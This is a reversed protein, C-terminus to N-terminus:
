GKDGSARDSASGSVSGSDSDRLHKPKPGRKPKGANALKDDMLMRNLDSKSVKLVQGLADQFRTYEDTPKAKV